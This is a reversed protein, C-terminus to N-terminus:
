WEASRSQYAFMAPPLESEPSASPGGARLNEHEDQRQDVSKALLEFTRRVRSVLNDAVTVAHRGMAIDFAGERYVKTSGVYRDDIHWHLTAGADSQAAAFVVREKRAGLEM